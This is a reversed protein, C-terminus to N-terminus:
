AGPGPLHTWSDPLIATPTVARQIAGTAIAIMSLVIAVINIVTAFDM